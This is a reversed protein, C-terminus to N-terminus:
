ISFDPCFLGPLFLLKKPHRVKTEHIRQARGSLVDCKWSVNSGVTNGHSKSNYSVRDERRAIQFHLGLLVKLSVDTPASNARHPRWETLMTSKWMETPVQNRFLLLIMFVKVLQCCPVM